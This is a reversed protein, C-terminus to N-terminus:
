TKTNGIFGNCKIENVIENNRKLEITHNKLNLGWEMSKKFEWVTAIEWFEIIVLKVNKTRKFTRM